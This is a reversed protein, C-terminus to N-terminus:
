AANFAFAPEKDRYKSDLKYLDGAMFSHQIIATIHAAEIQPFLSRLTPSAGTARTVPPVFAPPPPVEPPVEPPPPPADKTANTAKLQDSLSNVTNILAAFQEATVFQTPGPPTDDGLSMNSFIDPLDELETEQLYTDVETEDRDSLTNSADDNDSLNASSPRKAFRGNVRHQTTKQGKKPMCEEVQEFCNSTTVHSRAVMGDVRKCQWMVAERKPLEAVGRRRRRGSRM